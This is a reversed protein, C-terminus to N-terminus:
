VGRHARVGLHRALDRLGVGEVALRRRRELRQVRAHDVEGVRAGDLPLLQDLRQLRRRLRRRRRRRGVLVLVM